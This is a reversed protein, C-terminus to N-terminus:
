REAEKMEKIGDQMIKVSPHDSPVFKLLLEVGKEAYEIAKQYNGEKKYLIGINYNAIAIYQHENGYIHELIRLSSESYQRAKGYDGIKQYVNAINNYSYAFSSHYPNAIVSERIELAKQAYLLAHDYQELDIYDQGINDYCTATRTHNEGFRELYINLANVHFSLSKEYDKKGSYIMGINNYMDAIHKDRNGYLELYIDLARNYYSLASDLSGLNDYALGINNYSQAITGLNESSTTRRIDLSKYLYELGKEYEGIENYISGINNYSTAVSPHSPGYLELQLDLAKQNIELAKEFEDNNKYIYFINNYLDLLWPDNDGFQILCQRLATQYYSMAKAYDSVFEYTFVGADNQWKVNTTDMAARTEIYFQAKENDYKALAITYLQYLYEADKEQQKLVAAMDENAQALEEGAQSIQQDLRELAEINRDLVGIPDFLLHILSDARELDGNEICLNIEREKEDLLDYDTHAYHEALGDILSQYKEFKNQLDQIKERYQEISIVNDNLQRELMNYQVKYNKEATKYANNEIRQKDIQLQASSVMAIELQVKDSFALPRGIIDAENLEYGNKQVQQLSYEDGNHLGDLVIEFRGDSRSIVTNHQGKVKVTVGGLPKGAKEPRGITRVYGQQTQAVSLLSALILSGILFFRKM